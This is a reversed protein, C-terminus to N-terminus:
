PEVYRWIGGTWAAIVIVYKGLAADFAVGAQASGARMPANPYYNMWTGPTGTARPARQLTQAQPGMTAWGYDAYVFNPTGFVGNQVTGDNVLTWTMGYDGSRYVGHGKSGSLGAVYIVGRRDALIQATGHAHQLSNTMTWSQGGNTTRAIGGGGGWQAQILWNGRTTAASGTDIFFPFLSAGHTGSVSSVTRWTVGGDTSESLGANGHFGVLVHKSDYPDVDFSYTDNQFGVDGGTQTNNTKSMKWTVGNDESRAAGNGYGGGCFMVLPTNPDRRPNPDRGCAYVLTQSSIKTWTRGFDTSKFVASSPNSTFYFTGPRAPDDMMNQPGFGASSYGSRPTVDEWKGPEGTSMGQAGGTAPPESGGSGGPGVSGGAGGGSGGANGTSGGGGSKGGTGARGGTNGATGVAGAGAGTGNGGEGEGGSGSTVGSRGPGTIVGHCALAGALFLGCARLAAAHFRRTM